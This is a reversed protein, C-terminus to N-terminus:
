NAKRIFRALAPKTQTATSASDASSLQERVVKVADHRAADHKREDVINHHKRLYRKFSSSRGKTRNREPASQVGRLHANAQHQLIRDQAISESAPRRVRGILEPDLVITEPALKELLAHVEAERRQKATAYPNAALADYNAEGAGPVLVSEFGSSHGVGLVDEFPCFAMSAVAAGPLTHNMYPAAQRRLTIDRWLAVRPGGGVALLGTQSFALSTVRQGPCDYVGFPQQYSRMDWLRLAGDAGATALFQGTADCAVGAVPGRHALLKVLPAPCRPAWLTVTGNAHGINLIGSRPNPALPATCAGSSTWLPLAAALQGTTVDTYRLHGDRSTSALLFHHALFTLREATTHQRLRHVEVGAHDYVYVHRRQAVACFTENQLWTLDRVLEDTGLSTEFRLRGTQWDFAALTGAAGGLLVHRGNRTYAARFPGTAPDLRLAFSKKASQVDVMTRLQEQRV